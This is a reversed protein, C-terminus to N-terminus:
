RPGDKSTPTSPQDKVPAKDAPKTASQGSSEQEANMKAAYNRFYERADSNDSGCVEEFWQDSPMARKRLAQLEENPMLEPKLRHLAEAVKLTERHQTVYYALSSGVWLTTLNIKSGDPALLKFEDIIAGLSEHAITICPDRLALPLLGSVEAHPEFQKLDDWIYYRLSAEPLLIGKKLLELQKVKDLGSGRISSAAIFRVYDPEGKATLLYDITEFDLPVRIKAIQREDQQTSISIKCGDGAITQFTAQGWFGGKNKKAPQKRVSVTIGYKTNQYDRHEWKARQVSELAVNEAHLSWPLGPILIAVLTFIKM